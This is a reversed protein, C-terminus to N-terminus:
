LLPTGIFSSLKEKTGVIKKRTKYTKFEFVYINKSFQISFFLCNRTNALNSLTKKWCKSACRIKTKFFVNKTTPLRSSYISASSLNFNKM